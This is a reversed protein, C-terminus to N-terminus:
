QARERAMYRQIPDTDRHIRRPKPGSPHEEPYLDEGVRNWEAREADLEDLYSDVTQTETPKESEEAAVEIEALLADIEEETLKDEVMVYTGDANKETEIVTM